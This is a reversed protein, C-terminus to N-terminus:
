VQTQRQLGLTNKASLFHNPRTKKIWGALRHRKIPSSLNVKLKEQFMNLLEQWKM